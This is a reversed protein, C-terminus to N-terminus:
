PAVTVVGTMGQGQYPLSVYRYVGPATFTHRWTQGAAVPGSDFPQVGSPLSVMSPDSSKSPDFTVTHTAFSKNRWEVSQGVRIRVEAPKFKFGFAMDVVASPGADRAAVPAGSLLAAVATAALIVRVSSM